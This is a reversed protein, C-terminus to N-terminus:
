TRARPLVVRPPLLRRRHICRHRCCWRPRRSQSRPAAELSAGTGEGRSPSPSCMPSMREMSQTELALTWPMTCATCASANLLMVAVAAGCRYKVQMPQRDDILASAHGDVMVYSIRGM